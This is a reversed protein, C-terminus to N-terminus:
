TQLFAIRWLSVFPMFCRFVTSLNETGETNETTLFIHQVRCIFQACDGPHAAMDISM